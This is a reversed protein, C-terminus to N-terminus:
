NPALLSRLSRDFNDLMINLMIKKIKMNKKNNFLQMTPARLGKTEEKGKNQEYYEKYHLGVRGSEVAPDQGRV